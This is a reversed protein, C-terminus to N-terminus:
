EEDIYIKPETQSVAYTTNDFWVSDYFVKHDDVMFEDLEWNYVICLNNYKSGISSVYWKIIQKDPIVQAFAKTQDKDLLRMTKSIGKYKRHSLEITDYYLM